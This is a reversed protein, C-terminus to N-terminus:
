FSLIKRVKYDPFANELATVFKTRINHALDFKEYAARETPTCNRGIPSVNM